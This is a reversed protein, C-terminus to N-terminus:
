GEDGGAGLKPTFVLVVLFCRHLKVRDGEGEAVPGHGGPPGGSRGERGTDRAEPSRGGEHWRGAGPTYVTHTLSSSLSHLSPGSPHAGRRKGGGLAAHGSHNPPRLRSSPPHAEIHFVFQHVGAKAM